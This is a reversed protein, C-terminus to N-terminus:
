LVERIVINRMQLIIFLVNVKVFSSFDEKFAKKALLFGFLTTKLVLVNKFLIKQKITMFASKKQQIFKKLIARQNSVVILNNRLGRLVVKMVLNITIILM